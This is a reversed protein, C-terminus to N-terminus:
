CDSIQLARTSARCADFRPYSSPKDTRRQNSTPAEIVESLRSKSSQGPSLIGIDVEGPLLQTNENIQGKLSIDTVHPHNHTVQKM